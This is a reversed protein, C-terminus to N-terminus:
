VDLYRGFFVLGLNLHSEVLKQDIVTRMFNQVSAWEKTSRALLERSM